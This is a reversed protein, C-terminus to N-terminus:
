FETGLPSVPMGDVLAFQGSVVVVEGEEMGNVVEVYGAAERGVRLSRERAVWGDVAREVIFLAAKGNDQTLASRPVSLVASNSAPLEVVAVIGDRVGDVAANSWLELGFTGELEDAMAGLKQIAMIEEIGPLDPFRVVLQTHSRIRHLDRASVGAVVRVRALDVVTAVHDGTQVSDGADVLLEEVTGAFPARILADQALRQSEKLQVETLRLGATAIELNNELEALRVDSIADAQALPQARELERRAHANAARARQREALARQVRIETRSPDLAILVADPLVPEGPAVQRDVVRGTLESKLEAVRFARARGTIQRSEGIVRVQARDVSVRAAVVPRKAAPSRDEEASESASCSALGLLLTAAM